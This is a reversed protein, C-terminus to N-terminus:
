EAASAQLPAPRGARKVEYMARDAEGLLRLPDQDDEGPVALKVGISASVHLTRGDLELPEALARALKAAILTASSVVDIDTLVVVFEDGGLRAVTDVGRVNAALRRAVAQLLRDGADHGLSDNVEKFRDLDIYLLAIAHGQRAAQRLAQRIRDLLLRRNPLDTLTDYYAFQRVAEESARLEALLSERQAATAVLRANTERLARVASALRRYLGSVEGILVLLLVSGSVMSEVRGFYWGVTYRGRSALSAATDALAAALAVALWLHLVTRDRRGQRWAALLAAATTAAALGGVVFFAPTLSPATDRLLVPLRDHGHTVLLTAALALGIGAAIGTGVVRGVRGAALGARGGRRDVALALVVLAPFAVHALHWLWIASQPGGILGSDMRLGGPFALLFPIMLLANLLYASGLVAYSPRRWHAFQGFLLQATVGDVLLVFAVQFGVFQPLAALQVDGFLVIVAALVAIAAVWAASRRLAAASASGPDDPAAAPAGEDIM